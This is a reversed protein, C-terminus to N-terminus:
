NMVKEIKKTLSDIAYPLSLLSSHSFAGVELTDLFIESKKKVATLMKRGVIKKTYEYNNQAEIWVLIDTNLLEIKEQSIPVTVKEKVVDDINKPLQFGFAELIKVEISSKGYIGLQKGYIYAIAINKNKWKKHTNVVQNLKNKIVSIKQKAKDTKGLVKGYLLAREDWNLGYDTKGKPVAVVPAIKSLKEYDANTIGSWPALIVDPKTKALLEFDIQDRSIITPIKTIVM